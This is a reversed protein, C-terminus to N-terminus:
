ELRGVELAGQTDFIDLETSGPDYAPSKPGCFLLIILVNHCTM